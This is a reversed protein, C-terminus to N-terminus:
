GHGSKLDKEMVLGDEGDRYYRRFTNTWTYGCREYLAIARTNSRRVTLKIKQQGLLREAALLLATGIGRGLFDPHTALTVIWGSKESRNVEGAVFGAIREGMLAKLKVTQPTLWFNLLTLPDYADNGFAAREMRWISLIDFVSANDIIFESTALTANMANQM